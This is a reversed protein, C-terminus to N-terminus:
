SKGLTGGVTAVRRGERGLGSGRRHSVGAAGAGPQRDLDVGGLEGVAPDHLHPKRAVRTGAIQQAKGGGAADVQDGSGAERAEM